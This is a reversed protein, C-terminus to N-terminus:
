CFVMYLGTRASNGAKVACVNVQVGLARQLKKHPLSLVRPPPSLARLVFEIPVLSLVNLVFKIPQLCLVNLMLEIQSEVFALM